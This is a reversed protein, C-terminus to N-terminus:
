LNKLFELQAGTLIARTDHICQLHVMTARTKLGAIDELLPRLEAPSQGAFIGEVVKRELDAVKPSIRRVAGITEKRVVMLRSKQEESLKLEPNDWEKMLLKTLHPMKGTILFPPSNKLQGKSGSSAGHGRAFLGTASFTLVSVVVVFLLIKRQVM